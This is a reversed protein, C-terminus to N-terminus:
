RLFSNTDTITNTGSIQNNNASSKATFNNAAHSSEGLWFPFLWFTPTQGRGAKGGHPRSLRSGGPSEVKLGPVKSGSPCVQSNEHARLIAPSGGAGRCLHSGLGPPVSGCTERVFHALHVFYCFRHAAKASDTGALLHPRDGERRVEMRDCFTPTGAEGGRPSLGSWILIQYRRPCVGVM